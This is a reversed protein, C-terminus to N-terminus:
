PPLGGQLRLTTQQFSQNRLRPTLCTPPHSHRLAGTSQVLGRAAQNNALHSTCCRAASPALRLSCLLLQLLLRRTLMSPHVGVHVPSARKFAKSNATSLEALHKSAKKTSQIIREMDKKNTYYFMFLHSAAPHLLVHRERHHNTARQPQLPIKRAAVPPLPPHQM